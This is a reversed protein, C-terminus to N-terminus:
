IESKIVAIAEADISELRPGLKAVVQAAAYAGIRGAVPLPLGQTLGYLVGAAYMDGAGTTDVAEVPYVPIEYVTEGEVILSGSRDKTVVAIGGSLEALKRAAREVESEGTMGRAEEANSFVVDVHERLLGLFDERHRAVCFPDSLSFTVRVGAQKAENMARVVAEKQNDTDWLYGTVYLYRSHRIDELNVDAPTLERSEGLFTCMTRQADPTILILSIGTDGHGAGLNAKVGQRVLGDRYLRGHEDSGVRSTYVTSAGLLALGIMTNAGSGGSETNVIRDYIRPVINRQEEESILMMNGKALSLESLTEDSVEAQIDFLANCMGFVDFKETM